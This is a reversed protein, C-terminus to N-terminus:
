AAKALAARGAETIGDANLVGRRFLADIVRERNRWGLTGATDFDYIDSAEGDREFDRLMTLQKPSLKRM